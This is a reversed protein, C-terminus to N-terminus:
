PGSVRDLITLFIRDRCPQDYPFINLGTNLMMCNGDCLKWWPDGGIQVADSSTKGVGPAASQAVALSNWNNPAKDNQWHVGGGYEDAMGYLLHGTEHLITGRNFYETGVYTGDSFDRKTASHLIIRAQAFSLNADNSPYVHPTGADYDGAQATAPNVFFNYASRFRRVWAERHFSLDIDDAVGTLFQGMNGAMDADPVFVSNLVRDIDGVVYVPAAADVVPYPNTAFSITHNYTHSNGAVEFRYTIYKNDGYGSSKTYTVPFSPSSWTKLLAEPTAGSLNGSADVNAVVEYLNVSDVTGEIQSLTFTVQESGAPFIPRHIAFTEPSESCSTLLSISFLSLILATSSRNCSLNM